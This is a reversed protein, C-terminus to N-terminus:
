LLLTLIGVVGCYLAFYVFKKSLLLKLVISIAFYGVVASFIFGVSYTIYNQSFDSHYKTLQLISAGFIAPLSLLFSLEAAKKREIGLRTAAFITLGSRSIGPVIAIAQAVGVFLSDTTDLQSKKKVARDTLYNAVSTVLLAVGVVLTLSFLSEILDAFLLGVLAAPISGIILLKLYKRNLKILTKRFYIIVALLTGAHLMVDFLVGPQTFGPMVSQVIVLHGSSSIPLFETLGQLIGLLGAQMLNM